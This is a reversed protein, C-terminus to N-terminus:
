QIDTSSQFAITRQQCQEDSLKDICISQESKAESPVQANEKSLTKAEIRHLTAVFYHLLV